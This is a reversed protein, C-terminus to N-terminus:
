VFDLFSFSQIFIILVADVSIRTVMNIDLTPMAALSVRASFSDFLTMMISTSTLLQLASAAINHGPRGSL